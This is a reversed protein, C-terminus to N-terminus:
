GQLCLPPYMARRVLTKAGISDIKKEDAYWDILACRGSFSRVNDKPMMIRRLELRAGGGKRGEWDVIRDKIMYTRKLFPNHFEWEYFEDESLYKNTCFSM